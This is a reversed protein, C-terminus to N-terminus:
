RRSRRFKAGLKKKKSSPPRTSLPSSLLSSLVIFFSRRVSTNGLWISNLLLYENENHVTSLCPADNVYLLWGRIHRDLSPEVEGRSKGLAMCLSAFRRSDLARYIEGCRSICVALSGRAPKVTVSLSPLDSNTTFLSLTM